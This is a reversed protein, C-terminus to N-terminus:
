DGRETTIIEYIEKASMGMEEAIVSVRFGRDYLSLIKKVPDTTRKKRSARDQADCDYCYPGGSRGYPYFKMSRTIDAGCITCFCGPKTM